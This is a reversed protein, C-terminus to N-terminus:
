NLLIACNSQVTHARAGDVPIQPFPFLLFVLAHTILWSEASSNTYCHNRKAFYCHLPKVSSTKRSNQLILRPDSHRTAKKMENDCVRMCYHAHTHVRVSVCVHLRVHVHTPSQEGFM